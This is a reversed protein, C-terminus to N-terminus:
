KAVGGGCSQGDRGWSEVQTRIIDPVTTAEAETLRNMGDLPTVVVENDQCLRIDQVHHVKM